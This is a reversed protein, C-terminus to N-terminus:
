ITIENPKYPPNKRHIMSHCNSCLPILDKAPDTGEYGKSTTLEGISTIHHVEIYDKGLDGYTKQFDFGCINCYCGKLKICENRAERSRKIQQTSVIIYTKNENHLSYKYEDSINSKLINGVYQLAENRITSDINKDAYWINSQGHGSNKKSNTHPIEFDRDNQSILIANDADCILNYPIFEGNYIRSSRGDNVPNAYVRANQYFGAIVRKGNKGECTFIVLVDDLYEGLVDKSIEDKSIKKLNIKCWPATYGYCKSDDNQFNFLEHGFGEAAVYRGGGIVDKEYGCYKEMNTIHDFFMKNITSDM